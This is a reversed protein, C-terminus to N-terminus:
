ALEAKIEAMGRTAVAGGCLSVTISAFLADIQEARMRRDMDEAIVFTPM